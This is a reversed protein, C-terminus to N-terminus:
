GGVVSLFRRDYQERVAPGLAMFECTGSLLEPTPFIWPDEALAPDFRAMEEQAGEVPCVYQVWASLRAAVAPDYYHNMLAEANAKHTAVSPIVMNDAWIMGGSEPLAFGFDSGLALVDGSWGLSVIADGSDLSALYDNGTAQRIFGEDIKRQLVELTQDFQEETFDTMSHGQWNLLPGMTDMMETLITVRGRLRPDFFQDFSTVSAIGLERTLLTSNYGFGTFGSQWPLSYERGPDFPVDKLRPLLNVWNPIRAKDLRASFGSAIWLEVGEETLVVIDRDISSGQELTTRVKAFFENSDNIDDTYVVDIGTTDSFDSLTTGDGEDEDLYAPWNSFKM